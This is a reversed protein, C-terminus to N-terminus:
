RHKLLGQFNPPLLALHDMQRSLDLTQLSPLLLPLLKGVMEPDLQHKHKFEICPFFVKVYRIM